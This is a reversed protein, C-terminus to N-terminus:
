RTISRTGPTRVGPMRAPPASSDACIMVTASATTAAQTRASVPITQESIAGAARREALPRGDERRAAGGGGPERGQRPPVAPLCRGPHSTEPLGPLHRQPRPDGPDADARRKRDRGPLRPHVRGGQDAARRPQLRPNRQRGGGAARNRGQLRLLHTGDPASLLGSALDGRCRCSSTRAARGRVLSDLRAADPSLVSLAVHVEPSGLPKEWNEPSSEGTDGLEAARAAMGQRFEPAFSDLSDQPVGLAKLGQYTFAVSVWANQASRVPVAASEIVPLLRQVLKRGAERNDIHLLLYTGVYSAPRQHLMGSQIDNLELVTGAATTVTDASTRESGM